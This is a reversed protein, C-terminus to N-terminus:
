PDRAHAESQHSDVVDPERGRREILRSKLCCGLDVRLRVDTPCSLRCM